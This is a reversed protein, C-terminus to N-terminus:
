NRGDRFDDSFCTESSKLSFLLQSIRKFTSVTLLQFSNLRVSDDETTGNYRCLKVKLKKVGIQKLFYQLINISIKNWQGQIWCKASCILQSTEIRHSCQDNFSLVNGGVCVVHYQLNAKCQSALNSALHIKGSILLLRNDLTCLYWKLDVAFIVGGNCETFVSKPLPTLRFVHM